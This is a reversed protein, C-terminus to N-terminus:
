LPLVSSDDRKHIIFSSKVKCNLIIVILLSRFFKFYADDSRIIGDAACGIQLCQRRQRINYRRIIHYKEAMIWRHYRFNLLLRIVPKIQGQETMRMTTLHRNYGINQLYGIINRFIIHLFCAPQKFFVFAM